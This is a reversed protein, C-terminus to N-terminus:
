RAGPQSRRWLVYIRWIVLAAAIEALIRLIGLVLDM